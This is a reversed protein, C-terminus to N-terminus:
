GRIQVGLGSEHIRAATAELYKTAEDMLETEAAEIAALSASGARGTKTLPSVVTLLALEADFQESLTLATPLAQEALTSGDLTLAIRKYMEM